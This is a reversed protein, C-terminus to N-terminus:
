RVILLKATIFRDGAQVRILYLGQSLGSVDISTLNKTLLMTSKVQLGESNLITLTTNQPPDSSLLLSVRDEAPNPFVKMTMGTVGSTENIGFFRNGNPLRNRIFSNRITDVEIGLKGVSGRPNTENYDRAWTYVYDIEQKDGPKFTFPGSASLGRRDYPKNGATLETWEVPGNPPVCGTGWNLTDSLGPFMFRCEPGYGGTSPHGNGGYIIHTGDRWKGTMYNYYDPAYVPDIMYVPVGSNNFYMFGTMGLREDDIIGNGFNIGNVSEDCLRRGYQDKMPNDIGDADKLPGGLITMGESPPHAGYAQPQGNGDIDPGNYVYAMGRQVDCGIYDDMAWGLDFDNFWGLFTDHYTQNSRNFLEVHFFVSNNFATDDPIKFEYAWLHIETRTKRGQTESHFNRDDNYIMFVCQDGYIKPYDGDNPNYIQDGNRDFFPALILQQGQSTNGNGPWHMICDPPTYGPDMWHHKHYEIQWGDVKWVRNWLSDYSNGYATSDSVPGPWFDAYKWAPGTLPGQRYREGAFYLSDHQDKGGIWLSANFMPSKGSGKPVFFGVSGTEFGIFQNSCANITAEVNNVDLRAWQIDPVSVIIYNDSIPFLGHKPRLSYILTDIGGYYINPIFRVTSDNVKQCSGRSNGSVHWIYASDSTNPLFSSKLVNIDFPIGATGNVHVPLACFKLSDMYNKIVITAWDSVLMTDDTYRIRYRISWLFGQRNYVTDYIQLYGGTTKSVAPPYGNIVQFQWIEMPKGRPNLDNAMVDFVMTSFSTYVVSDNVAVPNNQARLSVAAITLILIFLINFFTFKTKM